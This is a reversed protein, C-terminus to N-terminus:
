GRLLEARRLVEQAKAGSPAILRVAFGPGASQVQVTVDAVSLPCDPMGPHARMENIHRTLTLQLWEATLGPQAPVFLEAGRLAQRTMRGNYFTETMLYPTVSAVQHQHLVCPPSAASSAAFTPAAVFASTSLVLAQLTKKTFM